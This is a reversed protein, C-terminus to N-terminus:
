GPRSLRKGLLLLAVITLMMVAFGLLAHALLFPLGALVLVDNGGPLLAAGLGMLVGGAVHRALRPLTPVSWQLQRASVAAVFGGLLLAGFSAAERPGPLTRDIALDSLVVLYSWSQGMLLLIGAALGITLMAAEVSWPGRGAIWPASPPQLRRIVLWLALGMIAFALTPGLSAGAARGPESWGAEFGLWAGLVSGPIVAAFGVDGRALKAITGMACGDNLTAGIGFLIAGM